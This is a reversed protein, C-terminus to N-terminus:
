WRTALASVNASEILSFMRAHVCMSYQITIVDKGIYLPLAGTQQRGIKTM